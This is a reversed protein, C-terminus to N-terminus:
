SLVLVRKVEKGKPASEDPNEQLYFFEDMEEETAVALQSHYESYKAYGEEIDDVTSILMTRWYDHSPHKFAVEVDGDFQELQTILESVTM